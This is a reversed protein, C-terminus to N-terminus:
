KDWARKFRKNKKTGRQVSIELPTLVQKLESDTIYIVNAFVQVGSLWHYTLADFPYKYVICWLQLELRLIWLIDNFKSNTNFFTAFLQLNWPFGNERMKIVAM